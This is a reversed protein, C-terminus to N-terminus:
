LTWTWVNWFIGVGHHGMVTEPTIGKLNKKAVYIADIYAIFTYAPDKALEEQFARYLPLREARDFSARARTLLEDVKENSYANFNSGKKTGYVKYTHDDADFPSGWCILFADQGRWDTKEQIEVTANVGIDQLNQACINAM